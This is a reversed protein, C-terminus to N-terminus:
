CVCVCVCQVTIPKPLMAATKGSVNSQEKLTRQGEAAASSGRPSTNNAVLQAASLLEGEQASTM